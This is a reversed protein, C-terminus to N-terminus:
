VDGEGTCVPLQGDLTGSSVCRLKLQGGTLAYGERCAYTIYEWQEVSMQTEPSVLIANAPAQPVDCSGVGGRSQFVDYETVLTKAMIMIM